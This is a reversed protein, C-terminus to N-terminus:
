AAILLTRKYSLKLARSAQKFTKWDLSMVSPDHRPHCPQFKSSALSRVIDFAGKSYRESLRVRRLRYAMMLWVRDQGTAADSCM